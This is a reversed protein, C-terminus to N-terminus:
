KKDYLYYTRSDRRGINLAITALRKKVFVFEVFLEFIKLTFGTIDQRKM